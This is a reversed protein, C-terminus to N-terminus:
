VERNTPLTLHTYSVPENFLRYTESQNLGFQMGGFQCKEEYSADFPTSILIKEFILLDQEAYAILKKKEQVQKISADLALREEPTLEAGKQM